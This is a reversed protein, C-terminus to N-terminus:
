GAQDLTYYNTLTLNGDNVLVKSYYSVGFVFVHRQIRTPLVQDVVTDGFDNNSIGRNNVFCTNSRTSSIIQLTYLHPDM